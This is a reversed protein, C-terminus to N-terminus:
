GVVREAFRQANTTLTSSRAAIRSNKRVVVSRKRVIARVNEVHGINVLKGFQGIGTSEHFLYGVSPLNGSNALVLGSRVQLGRYAGIEVIGAKNRGARREHASRDHIRNLGGAAVGESRWIDGQHRCENAVRSAAKLGVLVDVAGAERRSNRRALLAAVNEWSERTRSEKIRVYRYELIESESLGFRVNRLPSWFKFRVNLLAPLRVFGFKPVAVLVMPWRM